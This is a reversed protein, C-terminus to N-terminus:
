WHITEKLAKAWIEYGRENPHVGDTFITLDVKGTKFMDGWIDLWIVNEGDALPRILENIKPLKALAEASDPRPKKIQARPMLAMLVIKAGPQKERILGVLTRIGEAIDEPSAGWINNTGILLSVYRASYGDLMGGHRIAFILNQTVDGGFGLNIIRKGAFERDFVAKGPNEWRHTISDGIMVLDITRGKAARVEDRKMAFRNETRNFRLWRTSMTPSVTSIGPEPPSYLSEPRKDSKGLAYDLHPILEKAWIEYGAASPHLRDPFMEQTITGDKNQLLNNINCWLVKDKWMHKAALCLARNVYNNRKRVESDPNGRPFIPMLIVKAAPCKAIVRKIIANVGLVTDLPTEDALKRHGTNNTGILLVVAKPNLGDLEGNDIRWLVNETNDGSFGLNLARYDGSSFNKEWIERGRKEWGHTISDGIFVVPYGGKAALSKAREHRPMWWKLKKEATPKEPVTSVGALVIGSLGFALAAAVATRIKM